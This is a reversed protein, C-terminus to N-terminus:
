QEGKCGNRARKKNNEKVDTGQGRGITISKGKGKGKVITRRVNKRQGRGKM